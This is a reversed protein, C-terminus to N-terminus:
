IFNLLKLTGGIIKKTNLYFLQLRFSQSPILKLISGAISRM